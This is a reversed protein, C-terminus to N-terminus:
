GHRWGEKLDRLNTLAGTYNTFNDWNGACHYVVWVKGDRVEKIKGNEWETDMFHAPQYHFPDGVRINAIDLM